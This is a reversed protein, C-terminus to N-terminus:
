VENLSVATIVAKEKAENTSTAGLCTGEAHTKIGTDAATTILNSGSNELTNTELGTQGAAVTIKCTFFLITVKVKCETTTSGKAKKSGAAQELSLTCPEVTASAEKIEKTKAKCSNWKSIAIALTTGKTTGNAIKWEGEASSCTLTAGGGELVVTGSKGAGHSTGNKSEFEAFAPSASVALTAIMGALVALLKVRIM